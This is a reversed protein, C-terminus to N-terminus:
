VHARGIKGQDISAAIRLVEDADGDAAALVADFTPKGVTLTGTREVILTDIQRLTEIAEADRFLIGASAARGTAVMVTMPTALGLACPCAIILVAVANLIAYLLSPQPGLWAWLVFTLLSAALVALVFWYSVVDAMRQMPARSRQAAASRFLTTYPFLTDTRTSRPPRRRM